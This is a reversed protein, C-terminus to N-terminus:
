TARCAVPWSARMRRRTPARRCRPTSRTMSIASCRTRDALPLEVVVRTGLGLKSEVVLSGGMHEVLGRAILLGLGSGDRVLGPHGLREFPEFLRPIQEGSMGHGTDTVVLMAFGARVVGASWRVSGAPRNFKIANTALNLLVQRLCREDALVVLESPVDNHM